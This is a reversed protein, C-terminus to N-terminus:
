AEILFADMRATQVWNICLFTALLAVDWAPGCQDLVLELVCKCVIDRLM